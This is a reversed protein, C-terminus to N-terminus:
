HAINFQKIFCFLGEKPYNYLYGLEVPHDPAFGEVFLIGFRITLEKENARVCVNFASFM